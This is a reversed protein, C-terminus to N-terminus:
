HTSASKEVMLSVQFETQGPQSQVTIDGHHMRLLRRTIDLGLGTGQGPPKTTFFPDFIKPLIEEPIGKGDDAIKVLLRDRLVNASIRITGSESIADLANDILNMWVQNLESGIARVRPLNSQV